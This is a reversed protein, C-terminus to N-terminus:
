PTVATRHDYVNATTIRKKYPPVYENADIWKEVAGIRLRKTKNRFQTAKLSGEKIAKDIEVRPINYMECIEKIKYLKKDEM